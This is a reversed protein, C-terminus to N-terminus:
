RRARRRRRLTLTALALAWVGWSARLRPASAACQCGGQLTPDLADGVEAGVAACARASEEIGAIQFSQALYGINPAVADPVLNPVEYNM